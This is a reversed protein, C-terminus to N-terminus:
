ENYDQEKPPWPKHPKRAEPLGMLERYRRFMTRSAKVGVSELVQAYCLMGRRDKLVRRLGRTPDRM